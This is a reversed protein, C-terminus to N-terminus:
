RHTNAGGTLIFKVTQQRQQEGLFASRVGNLIIVREGKIAKQSARATRRERAPRSQKGVHTTLGHTNATLKLRNCFLLLELAVCDPSLHHHLSKLM